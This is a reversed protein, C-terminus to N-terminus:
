APMTENGNTKAFLYVKFNFSNGDEMEKWTPEQINLSRDCNLIVTVIDYKQTTSLEKLADDEITDDSSSYWESTSDLLASSMDKVPDKLIHDHNM